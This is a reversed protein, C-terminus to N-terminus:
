NKLLSSLNHGLVISATLLGFSPASSVGIGSGILICDFKENSVDSHYTKWKKM